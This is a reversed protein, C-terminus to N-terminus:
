VDKSLAKNTTQHSNGWRYKWMGRKEHELRFIVEQQKAQKPKVRTMKIM